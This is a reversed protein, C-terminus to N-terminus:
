NMYKKLLKDYEGSNKLNEITTNVSNLLKTNGKKIAVGYHQINLKLPLTKINSYQAILSNAITGDVIVADVRNELLDDIALNWTNRNVVANDGVLEQATAIGTTSTKSALNKTKWIESQETVDDFSHDNERVVVLQPDDYYPESFDVLNKRQETITIANIAIDIEGNQIAPILNEFNMIKFEVKKGADKAIAEIIDMDFGVVENGNDGGMYAFPPFGPNTGVILIKDTTSHTVIYFITFTILM